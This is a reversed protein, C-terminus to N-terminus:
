PRDWTWGQSTYTLTLTGISRIPGADSVGAVAPPLSAANLEHKGLAWLPVDVHAAPPEDIAFRNPVPEDFEVRVRDDGLRTSRIAEEHTRAFQHATDPYPESIDLAILEGHGHEAITVGTIRQVATRWASSRAGIEEIRDPHYVSEIIPRSDRPLLVDPYESLVEITRQLVPLNAYVRGIGDPGKGSEAYGELDPTPLIVAVEARGLGAPRVREPHRWLRGARQMIVDVPAVDTAMWDFDVDLSQEVVQTAVLISGAATGGRGFSEMVARDLASRDAPSYRSHYSVGTATGPGWMIEGAGMAALAEMTARAGKVTNRLVCVRAGSRALRLAQDLAASESAAGWTFRKEFPGAAIAVDDFDEEDPGLFSLVPFPRATTESEPSDIEEWGRLRERASAALTASMFLEIGGAARHVASLRRLLALMYPDYAHVEDVVLLKPAISALRLNAHRVPLVALLAQDVTGVVIEAALRRKAHDSTWAIAVEGGEDPQDPAMPLPDGAEFDAAGGGAALNVPPAEGQPYIHRVAEAVRNFMATATARTPLAFMLGGVLSAARLRAYLALAAETKGSGTPAEIILLSGPTPLEMEAVHSQLPTPRAADATGFLAPFAGILLAEGRAATPHSRPLIGAARMTTRARAQARAFHAKLDPPTGPRFPFLEPTSAVWDALVILGAFLHSFAPADWGDPAADPPLDSWLAAADALRNIEGIPDRGDRAEWVAVDVHQSPQYPIPRGHHGVITGLAVDLGDKSVARAFIRRVTELLAPSIRSDMSRLLVGLHGSSRVRGGSVTPLGQDQFSHNVKGIDHLAMLYVLRARTQATIEDLGAAQAIPTSFPSDRDLLVSLVASAEAAHLILPHWDAESDRKAWPIPTPALFRRDPGGVKRVENTSMHV